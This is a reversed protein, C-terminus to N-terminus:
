PDWKSAKLGPSKIKMDLAATQALKQAESLGLGLTAASKPQLRIRRGFGYMCRRGVSSTHAPEPIVGVGLQGVTEIVKEHLACYGPM